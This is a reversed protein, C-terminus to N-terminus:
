REDTDNTSWESLERDALGWDTENFTIPGARRRGALERKLQRLRLPSLYPTGQRVVNELHLSHAEPTWGSGAAHEMHYAVSPPEVDVFSLGAAHAQHMFVTDLHLSHVSWEPYGRLRSWDASSLLTFDGCANVNLKPLTALDVVARVRDASFAAVDGVSRSTPHHRPGSPLTAGPETRRQSPRKTLRTVAQRTQWAGFDALGQYIPLQRGVQPYYVGDRREYRVPHSECFALAEDVSTVSDTFPFEVDYRDARWLAGEGISSAALDFLSPTLLIDINTALLNTGMARRLGVNKAIMQMMPIGGEGVIRRHESPPVTIVRVSLAAAAAPWRLVDQLSPRDDPPNWEVMVFETRIQRREANWALGDVFWQMRELLHGGHDDNRSTAVVSLRTQTM